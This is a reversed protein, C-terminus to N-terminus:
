EGRRWRGKKRTEGIKERRSREEDGERKHEQTRRMVIRGAGGTEGKKQQTLHFDRPDSSQQGKKFCSETIGGWTAWM